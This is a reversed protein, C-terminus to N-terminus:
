EIDTSASAVHNVNDDISFLSATSGNQLLTGTRKMTAPVSSDRRMGLNSTRQASDLSFKSGPTHERSLNSFDRFLNPPKTTSVPRSGERTASSRIAELTTHPRSQVESDDFIGYHDSSLMAVLRQEKRSIRSRELNSRSFLTRINELQKGTQKCQSRWKCAYMQEECLVDLCIQLSSMCEALQSHLVEIYQEPTKANLLQQNHTATTTAIYEAYNKAQRM